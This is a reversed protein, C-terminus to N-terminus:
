IYDDLPLPVRDPLQQLPLGRPRRRHHIRDEGGHHRRPRGKTLIPNQPLMFTEVAHDPAFALEM